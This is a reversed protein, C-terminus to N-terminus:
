RIRRIINGMLREWRVMTSNFAVYSRPNHNYGDREWRVMTSNFSAVAQVECGTLYDSGDCWLPISLNTVEPAENQMQAGM